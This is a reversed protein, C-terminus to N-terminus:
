VSNCLRFRHVGLKQFWRFVSLHPYCGTAAHIQIVMKLLKM